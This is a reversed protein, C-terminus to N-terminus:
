GVSTRLWDQSGVVVIWVFIWSKMAKASLYGMFSWDIVHVNSSDKLDWAHMRKIQKSGFMLDEYLLRRCQNYESVLPQPIQDM